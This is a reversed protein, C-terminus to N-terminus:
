SQLRLTVESQPSDSRGILQISQVSRHSGFSTLPFTENSFGQQGLDIQETQGNTFQVTASQFQTTGRVGVLLRNGSANVPLITSVWGNGQNLTESTQWTTQESPLLPVQVIPTEVIPPQYVPTNLYIGAYDPVPDLIFPEVVSQRVTEPVNEQVNIRPAPRVIRETVNVQPATTGPREVIRVPAAQRLTEVVRVSSPENRPQRIVIQQAAEAPRVAAITGLSTACLASCLLPSFPKM